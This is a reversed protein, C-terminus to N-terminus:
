PCPNRRWSRPCATSTCAAAIRPRSVAGRPWGAVLGAEGQRNDLMGGLERRNGGDADILWVHTDEM